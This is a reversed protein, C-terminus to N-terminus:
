PRSDDLTCAEYLHGYFIGVGQEHTGIAVRHLADTHDLCRSPSNTGYVQTVHHLILGHPVGDFKSDSALFVRLFVCFCLMSGSRSIAQALNYSSNWHATLSVVFIFWLLILSYFYLIAYLETVVTLSRVSGVYGHVGSSLFWAFALWGSFRSTITFPAFHAPLIPGQLVPSRGFGDGPTGFSAVFFLTPLM